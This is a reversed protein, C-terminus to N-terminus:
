YLTSPDFEDARDGIGFDVWFNATRYVDREVHEARVADEIRELFAALYDRNAEGIETRELWLDSSLSVSVQVVYESDISDYQRNRNCVLEVDLPAWTADLDAPKGHKYQRCDGRDILREGCDLQVLIRHDDFSIRPIWEGPFEVRDLSDAFDASSLGTDDRLTESTRAVSECTAAGNIPNQQETYRRVQYSMEIPTLFGAFSRFVRECFDSMVDVQAGYSTIDLSVVFTWSM